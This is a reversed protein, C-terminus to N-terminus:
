FEKKEGETRWEERLPRVPVRIKAFEDSPQSYSLVLVKKDLYSKGYEVSVVDRLGAVVVEYRASLRDVDGWIAVGEVTEGPKITKPREAISALPKGLARELEAEAKPYCGEIFSKKRDTDLRFALNFPLEESTSNKVSFLLYWRLPAQGNAETVHMLGFRQSSFDLKWPAKGTDSDQASATSGALGFAVVASLLIGQGRSM